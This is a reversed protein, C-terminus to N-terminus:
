LVSELSRPGVDVPRKIEREDEGAKLRRVLEEPEFDAGVPNIRFAESSMYESAEEATDFNDVQTEIQNGDPDRYYMSTTPGHNICGSPEMGHAKRQLYALALDSLTNFTFAVHALGAATPVKPTGNPTAVIAIRHHESDYTLFSAFENEYSATANLFTKYFSVM